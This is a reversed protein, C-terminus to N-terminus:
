YEGDVINMFDARILNAIQQGVAKTVRKQEKKDEICEFEGENDKRYDEIVDKTMMGMLKGFDKDTIVGVKSIVNQLRPKCIYTVMEDLVGQAVESLDPLPVKPLKNDKETFKPNKNKLIVRKGSMLFKPFVPKIVVGECINDAIAPLGISEPFTSQFENPYACAEDFAGRFLEKAYPIDYRRCLVQMTDYDQLEGNSMLDFVSFYNDPGYAVEKQIMKRGAMREVDPHPYAGGFLEGYLTITLDDNGVIDSAEKWLARFNDELPETVHSHAYFDEEDKVIGSRKGYQIADKTIWVSFNAGHIKETVSYQEAGFGQEVIYNITKQRYSNEISNYRVFKM